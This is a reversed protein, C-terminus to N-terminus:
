QGACAGRGVEYRHRHRETIQEQNGYLKEAGPISRAPRSIWRCSRRAYGPEPCPPLEATSTLCDKVFVTTRAGLRMTGGLNTFSVEPMNIVVPYEADPKM